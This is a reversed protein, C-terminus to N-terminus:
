ADFGGLHTRLAIKARHLRTRVSSPRIGLIRAAQESDFGLWEVLVLAERQQRSLSRLARRLDGRTGAVEAPDRIPSPPFFPRNIARRRRRRYLNVATTYVYGAPSDMRQVKDWREYARAMAEQVLDETEARDGTLLYLARGLSLAEARFFSDFDVGEEVLAASSPISRVGWYGV